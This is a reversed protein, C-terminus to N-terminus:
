LQTVQIQQRFRSSLLFWRSFSPFHIYLIEIAMNSCGSTEAQSQPLGPVLGGTTEALASFAERILDEQVSVSPSDCPCRDPPLDPSPPSPLRLLFAKPIPPYRSRPTDLSLDRLTTYPIPSGKSPAPIYRKKLSNGIM